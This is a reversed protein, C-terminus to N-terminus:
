SPTIRRRRDTRTAAGTSASAAHVDLVDPCPEGCDSAVVDVPGEVATDVVLAGGVVDVGGGDVTGGTSGARWRNLAM